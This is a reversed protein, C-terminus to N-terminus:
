PLIGLVIALQSKDLRIVVCAFFIKRRNCATKPQRGRQQLTSNGAHRGRRFRRDFTFAGTCPEHVIAIQLAFDPSPHEGFLVIDLDKAVASTQELGEAGAALGVYEYEVPM